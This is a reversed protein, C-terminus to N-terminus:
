RYGECFSERSVCRHFPVDGLAGIDKDGIVGPWVAEERRRCSSTLMFVWNSFMDMCVADCGIQAGPSMGYITAGESGTGHRSGENMGRAVQVLTGVKGGVIMDEVMVGVNPGSCIDFACPIGPGIGRSVDGRQGDLM